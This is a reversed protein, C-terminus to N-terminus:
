KKKPLIRELEKQFRENKEEFDEAEKVYKAKDAASLTDSIGQNDKIITACLARGWDLGAQRAVSDKM